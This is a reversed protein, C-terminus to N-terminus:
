RRGAPRRTSDASAASASSNQADVSWVLWGVHGPAPELQQARWRGSAGDRWGLPSELRRPDYAVPDGLAKALAEKSSWLSIVFRADDLLGRFRELEEPTCISAAFDRTRAAAAPGSEVEQVAELDVGLPTAGWAVLGLSGCYSRSAHPATRACPHARALKRLEASESGGQPLRLLEHSPLM